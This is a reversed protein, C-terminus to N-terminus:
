CFLFLSTITSIHGWSTITSCSGAMTARVMPQSLKAVLTAPLAMLTDVVWGVGQQM